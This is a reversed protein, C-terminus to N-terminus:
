ERLLRYGSRTILVAHPSGLYLLGRERLRGLADADRVPDLYFYHEDEILEPLRRKFARFASGKPAENLLDLQKFSMVECGRYVFPELLPKM